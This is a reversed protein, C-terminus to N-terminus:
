NKIFKSQYVNREAFLQIIYLGNSLNEINISALNEFQELVIKGSIDMIKINTLASNGSLSINLVSKAPNPYIRFDSLNFQDNALTPCVILTPLSKSIGTGDGMEGYLNKGWTYLTGDSKIAACHSIKSTIQLWTTTSTSVATPILKNIITGDGLQGLANGGFAWLTGDSKQVFSHQEGKTIKSYNNTAEINTPINKDIITNDGLQGTDNRGWTWITGNSKMAINFYLAAEVNQWNTALGIQTPLYKNVITGDGLQSYNNAGWAWLTGNTKIAVTHGSAASVMLWNTDSGIQVPTAKNNASGFTGDGLQGYTNDGWAWLTGDTKIATTYEYGASIYSWNTDTGLQTPISVNGVLGNGLQGSANRGWSWLTGNAKLAISHGSGASIKQWNLDLGVKLPINSNTFSGNGLQGSGGRGWTWLSGDSGVGITHAGGTAVKSWCQANVFYPLIFLLLLYFFNKM